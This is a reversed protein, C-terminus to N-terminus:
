LEAPFDFLLDKDAAVVMAFQLQQITRQNVRTWQTFKQLQTENLPGRFLDVLMDTHPFHLWEHVQLAAFCKDVIALRTSENHVYPELQLLRICQMDTLGLELKLERFIPDDQAALALMWSDENAQRITSARRLLQTLLLTTEETKSDKSMHGSQRHAGKLAELLTQIDGQGFQHALTKALVNQLEKVETEFGEVLEKFRKRRAGALDRNRALRKQKRQEEEQLKRYITICGPTAMFTRIEDSTIEGEEKGLFKALVALDLPVGPAVEMPGPAADDDQVSLNRMQTEAVSEVPETKTYIFMPPTEYDAFASRPAHRKSSQEVPAPDPLSAGVSATSPDYYGYSQQQQQANNMSSAGMNMHQGGGVNHYGDTYMMGPPQQQQQQHHVQQHYMNYQVQQSHMGMPNQMYMSNMAAATQRREREDQMMPPGQPYYPPDM